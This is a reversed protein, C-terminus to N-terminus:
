ARKENLTKAKESKGALVKYIKVMYQIGEVHGTLRIGKSEM